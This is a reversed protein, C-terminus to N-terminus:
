NSIRQAAWAVRHYCVTPYIPISGNFLVQIIENLQSINPARFSLLILAFILTTLICKPIDKLTAEGSYKHRPLYVFPLLCLGNLVGWIVYTWNAGHWIGSLAFVIMVNLSTRAKSCHSGGLPFYVYNRFWSMLSIHWRQWLEKMSRSFFPYHFNISLKINMLRASGIAIDSYGSFDAYIQFAFIIAVTVITLSNMTVPNYLITDVYGALTNAIVIKKALGWLIQRMGIVANDYDFSKQRLFQPLLDKAREIPGAVLQPFFSIYVLFAVLNKTHKIEGRYLDITYSIAQFTYFSIGVPLLINITPWDTSIGWIRLFDAFSDKFFNCYKFVVLIGINLVINLTAWLRSSKSRSGDILLGTAYTSLSTIIILSLFRWDWWGYFLYSACLLLLNQWIIRKKSLAWYLFFVAPLFLAYIYTDFQM